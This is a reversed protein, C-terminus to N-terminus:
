SCSNFRWSALSALFIRFSVASSSLNVRVIEVGFDLLL